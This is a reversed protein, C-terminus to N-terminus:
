KLAIWTQRSPSSFSTRNAALSAEDRAPIELYSDLLAMPTRDKPGSLDTKRVSYATSRNWGQQASQVGQSNNCPLPCDATRSEDM